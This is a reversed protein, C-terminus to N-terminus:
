VPIIMIMKYRDILGTKQAMIIKNQFFVVKQILSSYYTTPHRKHGM